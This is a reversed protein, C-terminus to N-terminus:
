LKCYDTQFIGQWNWKSQVTFNIDSLINRRAMKDTETEVAEWRHTSSYHICRFYSPAAEEYVTHIHLHTCPPFNPKRAASTSLLSFQLLISRKKPREKGDMQENDGWPASSSTKPGLSFLILHMSSMCNLILTVLLFYPSGIFAHHLRHTQQWSEKERVTGCVSIWNNATMPDLWLSLSLRFRSYFLLLLPKIPLIDSQRRFFEFAKWSHSRCFEKGKETRKVCLSFFLLLDKDRNYNSM